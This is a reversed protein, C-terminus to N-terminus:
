EVEIGFASAVETATDFDVQQNISAMVGRAMLEKIVEIATVHLADALEAVSMVTGLTVPGVPRPAVATAAGGRPGDHRQSRGRHRGNGGGPRGRNPGGRFNGGRNPGSGGPRRPAGSM